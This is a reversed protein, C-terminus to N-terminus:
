NGFSTLYQCYKDSIVYLFEGSDGTRSCLGFLGLSPISIGKSRGSCKGSGSIIDEGTAGSLFVVM